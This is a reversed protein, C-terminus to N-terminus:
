SELYLGHFPVVLPGLRYAYLEASVAAPVRFKHFGDKGKPEQLGPGQEEFPCQQPFGLVKRLSLFTTKSM